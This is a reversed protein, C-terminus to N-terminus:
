DTREHLSFLRQNEPWDYKLGPLRLRTWGLEGFDSFLLLAPRLTNHVLCTLYSIPSKIVLQPKVITTFSGHSYILIPDSENLLTLSLSLQQNPHYSTWQRRDSHISFSESQNMSVFSVESENNNRLRTLFCESGLSFSCFIIKYLQGNMLLSRNQWKILLTNLTQM